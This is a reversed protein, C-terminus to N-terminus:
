GKRFREALEEAAKKGQPHSLLKMLQKAWSYAFRKSVGFNESIIGATEQVNSCNMIKRFVPQYHMTANYFKELPTDGKLWKIKDLGFEKMFVVPSKKGTQVKIAGAFLGIQSSVRNYKELEKFTSSDLVYYFMKKGNFVGERKPWKEILEEPFLLQHFFYDEKIPHRLEFKGTQEVAFNFDKRKVTAKLDKFLRIHPLGIKKQGRKEQIAEINFYCLKNPNSEDVFVIHKVTGKPLKLEKMKQTRIFPVRCRKISPLIFRKIFETPTKHKMMAALVTKSM